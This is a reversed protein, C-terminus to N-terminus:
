MAGSTQTKSFNTSLKTLADLVQEPDFITKEAIRFADRIETNAAEASGLQVACGRKWPAARYRPAQKRRLAAAGVAAIM